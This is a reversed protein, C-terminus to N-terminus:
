RPQELRNREVARVKFRELQKVAQPEAQPDQDHNPQPDHQLDPLPAQHVNCSTDAHGRHRTDERLSLNFIFLETDRLWSKLEKIKLELQAVMSSTGPSLLGHTGLEGTCVEVPEGLSKQLCAYVYIRSFLFACVFTYM